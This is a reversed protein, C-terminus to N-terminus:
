GARLSYGCITPSTRPAKLPHADFWEAVEKLMQEKEAQRRRREALQRLGRRILGECEKALQLELLQKKWEPSPRLHDMTVETVHWWCSRSPDGGGSLWRVQVKFNHEEIVHRVAEDQWDGCEFRVSEFLRGMQWAWSKSLCDKMKSECIKGGKYNLVIVVQKVMERWARARPTLWGFRANYRPGIRRAGKARTENSWHGFYRVCRARKDEALRHEWDKRLYTGLYRGLAEGNERM